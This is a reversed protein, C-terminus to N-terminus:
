GNNGSCPAQDAYIANLSALFGGSVVEAHGLIEGTHKM